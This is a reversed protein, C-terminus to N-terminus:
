PTGPDRGHAPTGPLFPRCPSPSDLGGAVSLPLPSPFPLDAPRLYLMLAAAMIFAFSGLGMLLAISGHLGLGAIQLYPRVARRAVLGMVLAFEVVIAGWTLQTVGLPSALVPQPPAPFGM